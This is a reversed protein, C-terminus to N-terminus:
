AKLVLFRSGSESRVLILIGDNVNAQQIAQRFDTTSKIPSHQVKAIVMGSTLGAAAAPSDSQVGIILVGQQDSLNLRQAIESDISDVQLGLGDYATPETQSGTSPGARNVQGSKAQRAVYELSLRKGDRLVVLGYRQGIESREVLTQLKHTSNVKTGAFELLIDGDQLGAKKAPSGPLVQTVLLGTRPPINFQDALAQTVAQIGVGLFARRVIGDDVLEDAVWKALNIPVAFGIGDNGGDRSSIATNIGVIRGELDVLPGGSNGPNIAADTQLFDERDTIGMARGKASIIGATVSSELGFPQGLALVWDGVQAEDSDGITATPFQAGGPIQILAIDTKPDGWVQTATFERGDHLRVTIIGNGQVVHNNTLIIGTKDIIVGSGAGMGRPLFPAAPTGFTSQDGRPHEDPSKFYGSPKSQNTNSQTLRPRNEIAVITPLVRRSVNRFTLSLSKAAALSARDSALNDQNNNLTSTPNDSTVWNIHTSQTAAGTGHTDALLASGQAISFITYAIFTMAICGICYKTSKRYNM